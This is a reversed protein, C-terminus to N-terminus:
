AGLLDRVKAVIQDTSAAQKPTNEAEKESATTEYKYSSNMASILNSLAHLSQPSLETEGECDRIMRDSIKQVLVHLKEHVNVRAKMDRDREGKWDGEEAWTRVTKECRGVRTSIEDFTMQQYVYFDHALDKGDGHKM